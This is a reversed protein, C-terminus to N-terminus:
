IFNKEVKNHYKKFRIWQGFKLYGRGMLKNRRTKTERVTEHM